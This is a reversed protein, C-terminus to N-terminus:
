EAAQGTVAKVSDLLNGFKGYNEKVGDDLDLPIRMDAHHRLQEDFSSLEAQQNHLTKLEAMLQKRESTSSAAEAEEQLRNIRANIRSSLPIVYEARMRALTGEHYRHLYVLCEFAKHKGSSFLWYIPRRKYTKLHDKYFQNSLYRRITDLAREGKKAKLAYLCLSDAIFQLNEELHQEGWVTHVFESIRNTVDDSFWEQETLPLIGDDDAAFTKYAGEAVLDAFGENGAHAYVLGERDLSYRGMMCGIAYSILEAITDSQLRDEREQETLDGRYRYHPNCSLTIERLPVDPTIEDQLNYANIFLSNNEKELLQTTEITSTWDSRTSEFVTSLKPQQRRLRTIEPGVFDWSTEYSDWDVQHTAILEQAINTAQHKIKQIEETLLPLAAVNGVQFNLTPNMIKMFQFAQKSCLFGTMWAADEEKPFASSGGVDFIAGQPSYRVGFYASSVFSWTISLKFYHETNQARSRIKGKDDAISRIEEGDFEWNVVYDNNGYWKRFEGGKNYPFWKKLSSEAAKRNKLNLGIKNISVEHWLRIFRDNDATALGQRVPASEGLPKGKFFATRMNSEVWYAIPSSPIAMFSAASARYFHQSMDTTKQESM